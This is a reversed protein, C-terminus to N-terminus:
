SRYIATIPEVRGAKFAPYLAAVSTVVILILISALVHEPSVRTYVIPTLFGTSVGEAAGWLPIGVRAFYGVLGYGFLLGALIGLSELLITELFILGVLQRPKVGIALMVGFERTRELVSMVVTNMIGVAIVVTMAVVIVRVVGEAWDAIQEAEPEAQNWTLVEYRTPDATQGLFALVEPISSLQRLRLTLESVGTDIGLLEQAAALDTYAVQEDMMRTGAHFIGRVRYAYGNLMGDAGHAMVVAKDGVELGLKQALRDGLLIEKQGSGALFSGRQVFAAIRTVRGEQEHDVGLLLAGQSYESTGILVRSKVRRTVAAVAPHAELKRILPEPDAIALEPSFNREFGLAHVQLHGTFLSTASELMGHAGGDKYGWLFILGGLGVGIALITILSRRLNRWCNMFALKLFLRM